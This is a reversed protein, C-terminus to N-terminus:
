HILCSQLMQTQPPCEARIHIPQIAKQQQQQHQQQHQRSSQFSPHFKLPSFVAVIPQETKIYTYTVCVFFFPIQQTNPHFSRFLCVFLCVFCYVFVVFNNLDLPATSSYKHSHSHFCHTGHHFKSNISQNTLQISYFLIFYAARPVTLTPSRLCILRTLSLFFM